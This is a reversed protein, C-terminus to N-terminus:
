EMNPMTGQMMELHHEAMAIQQAISKDAMNRHMILMMKIMSKRHEHMIKQQKKPDNEQKVSLIQEKMILMNTHMKEMNEHSMAMGDHMNKNDMETSLAPTSISAALISVTLVSKALKKM